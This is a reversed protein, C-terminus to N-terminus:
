ACGASNQPCHLLIEFHPRLADLYDEKKLTPNKVGRIVWGDIMMAIMDIRSELKDDEVAGNRLLVDKLHGRMVGDVVRVIEGIRPNRAAEALFELSLAAQEPAVVKEIHFRAVEMMEELLDGTRARVEAMRKSWEALKQEVIAAIVAEKNEFYRYIQGVSMGAESAISAMSASHFGENNFCKAAADLVQARRQDAKSLETTTVPEASDM